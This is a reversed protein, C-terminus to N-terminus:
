IYYVSEVTDERDRPPRPDRTTPTLQSSAIRGWAVVWGVLGLPCGKLIDDKRFQLATSRSPPPPLLPYSHSASTGGDGGWGTEGGARKRAAAPSAFPSKSDMALTGLSHKSPCESM